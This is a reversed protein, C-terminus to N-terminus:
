SIHSYHVNEEIANKRNELKKWKSKGLLTAGVITLLLMQWVQVLPGFGISHEITDRVEDFAAHYITAVLLSSSTSWFYSFIVAHMMSPVISIAFIIIISFLINGKIVPTNIGAFVLVPLHWIWWIFAQIILAKKISHKLLLRPLLYGRWGFEEGFAPILTIIFSLLFLSGTNFVNFTQPLIQIGLLLGILTPVVWILIPLVFAMLYHKPKGWSWGADRFTDQFVYKGAIFTGITVMIMSILLMKKAWLAEPFFFIFAQFPWSIAFVILLYTVLSFKKNSQSQNTLNNNM